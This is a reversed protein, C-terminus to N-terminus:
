RVFGFHRGHTQTGYLDTMFTTIHVMYKGYPDTITAVSIRSFLNHVLYKGYFKTVKTAVPIWTFLNQVLYKGYSKLSILQWLFGHSCVTYWIDAM